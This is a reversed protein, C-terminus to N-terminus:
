GEVCEIQITIDKIGAEQLLGAASNKFSAKDTEASVHLHPTGVIYKHLEMYEVEPCM